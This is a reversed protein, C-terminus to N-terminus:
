VCTVGEFEIETVSLFWRSKLPLEQAPEATISSINVGYDKGLLFLDIDERLNLLKKVQAWSSVDLGSDDPTSFKYSLCIAVVPRRNLKVIQRRGQSEARNYDMTVPLVYLASEDYEFMREPDLCPRAEVFDDETTGVTYDSWVSSDSTNLLTVITDVLNTLQPSAM